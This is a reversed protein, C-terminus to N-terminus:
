RQKVRAISAIARPAQGSMESISREQAEIAKRIDDDDAFGRLVSSPVKCNSRKSGDKYVVNVVIVESVTPNRSRGM